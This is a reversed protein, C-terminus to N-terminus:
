SNTFSVVGNSERLGHAALYRLAARPDNCTINTAGAQVARIVSDENDACFLWPKLHYENAMEVDKRLQQVNEADGIPIGIGYMNQYLQETQPDNPDLAPNMYRAPFGQTKMEPYAQQTYQLIEGCFCAIVSREALDYSCLAAITEDVLKHDYDKIEVNLLVEYGAQAMLKLTEDLTPIRENAFHIGMKIGADYSKLEELTMDCILGSGNTTRLIDSDHCVVIKRDKTFRVDFEILDLRLELAARFSVLTNEPYLSRVGRHGVIMINKESEKEWLEIGSM